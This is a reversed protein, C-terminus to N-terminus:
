ATCKFIRYPHGYTVINRGQAHWELENARDLIADVYADGGGGGTYFKVQFPDRQLYVFGALDDAPVGDAAAVVFYTTDSEFGALEPAEIVDINGIGRLLGTIDSSGGVVTSSVTVAATLFKADLAQTVAPYLTPGAIIAKPKLYRPDTGNPMKIAGITGYIKKLTTVTTAADTSLSATTILNSYTGKGADNVDYPHTSAFFAQGDYALGYASTTLHGTTLAKAINRQPWYGFQGAMQRMWSTGIALGEGGVIGNVIDELQAKRLKLAKGVFEPTITKTAFGLDDFNFNGGQEGQSELMATQVVWTLIEQRAGGNILKTVQRWWQNSSASYAAYDDVIISRWRSELDVLQAKDFM